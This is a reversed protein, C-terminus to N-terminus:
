WQGHDWPIPLWPPLIEEETAEAKRSIPLWPSLLEEEMAEAKWAVWWWLHLLPHLCPPTLKGKAAMANQAAQRRHNCPIPLWPSLIEEETSEAKWM